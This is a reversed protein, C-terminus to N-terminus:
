AYSFTINLMSPTEFFYEDGVICAEFDESM